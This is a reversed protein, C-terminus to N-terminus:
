KGKLAEGFPDGSSAKETTEDVDLSVKIGTRKEFASLAKEVRDLKAKLESFEKDQKEKAEAEEKAKKEAEEKEKKEQEEKEKKEAEAKAKAEQKEKAEAEEKAKKEEESLEKEIIGKETLITRVGVVDDRLPTLAKEILEQIEEPTMTHGGIGKEEIKPEAETIVASLVAVAERLKRLRSASIIRGEKDVVISEASKTLITESHTDLFEEFADVMAKALATSNKRTSATAVLYWVSNKLYEFAKSIASVELGRKFQSMMDEISVEAKEAEVFPIKEVITVIASKFSKVTKKIAEMADSSKDGSYVSRWFVSEFVEVASSAQASAYMRDFESVAKEGTSEVDGDGTKRSKFILVEADPVAPRDVIAIRDVKSAHFLYKQKKDM